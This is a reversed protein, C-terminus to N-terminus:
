GLEDLVSDANKGLENKGFFPVIDRYFFLFIGQM